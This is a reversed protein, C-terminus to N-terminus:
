VDCPGEVEPFKNDCYGLEANGQSYLNLTNYKRVEALAKVKDRWGRLAPKGM